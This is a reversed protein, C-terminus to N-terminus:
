PRLELAKGFTDKKIEVKRFSFAVLEKKKKVLLIIKLFVKM